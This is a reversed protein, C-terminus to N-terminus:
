RDPSIDFRSVVWTRTVSADNTARRGVQKLEIDSVATDAIADLKFVAKHAHAGRAAHVRKKGAQALDSRDGFKIRIALRASVAVEVAGPGPEVDDPIKPEAVDAQAPGTVILDASPASSRNLFDSWQGSPALQGADAHDRQTKHNATSAEPHNRFSTQHRRHKSRSNTPEM